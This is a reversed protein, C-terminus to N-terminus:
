SKEGITLLHYFNHTQQQINTFGLDKFMKLMQEKTYIRINKEQFVLRNVVNMLKSILGGTFPDSLFLKGKPKLVRFMEKLSILSNPYHHFSLICTVYDFTSNKYPLKEASGIQIKVNDSHNFKTKAMNVMKPSIDLGYLKLNRDLLFLQKLLIGWGCGIDLISSGNKPDIIKIIKKSLFFFPLYFITYFKAWLNFQIVSDQELKQM